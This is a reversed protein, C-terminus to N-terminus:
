EKNDEQKKKDKDKDKEPAHKILVYADAGEEEGSVSGVEGPAVPTDREEKLRREREHRLQQLEKLAMSHSQSPGLYSTGALTGIICTGVLISLYFRYQSYWMPTWGAATAKMDAYWLGTFAAWQTALAM